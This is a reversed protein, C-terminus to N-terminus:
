EIIDWVLIQSQWGQLSTKIVDGGPITIGTVLDSVTTEAPVNHLVVDENDGCMNLVYVLHKGGSRHFWVSVNDSKSAWPSDAAVTLVQELFFEQEAATIHKEMGLGMFDAFYFAKGKGYNHAIVMPRGDLSRGLVEADPAPKIIQSMFSGNKKENLFEFEVPGDVDMENFGFVESLIKGPVGEAPVVGDDDVTGCRCDAILVGGASVYDALQQQQKTSLSILSPLVLIPAQLDDDSLDKIETFTTPIASSWFLRYWGTMTKPHFSPAWEGIPKPRSLFSDFFLRSRYSSVVKVAPSVPLANKFLESNDNLVTAITKMAEARAGPTGDIHTVGRGTSQYGHLFPRWRWLQLGRAGSGFGSWVWSYLREPTVESGPSLPSTTHTQIENIYFDKEAKAAASASLSFYMSLNWPLYLKQGWSKPYFTAGYIDCTKALDFEDSNKETLNPSLLADPLGDVIVPHNTDFEKAYDVYRKCIASLNESRFREYEVGPLMSSWLSYGANRDDPDIQSFDRYRRHWRYNLNEISEYKEKLWQRYLETTWPDDTSLRAENFVDWALVAPHDKLSNIALGFFEYVCQDVEPHNPNAWFCNKPHLALMEPKMLCDPMYEQSQNQGILQMIATLSREQCLDLLKLTDDFVFEDPQKALWSNALPWVTITEFGLDQINDLDRAIERFSRGQELIYVTGFVIDGM